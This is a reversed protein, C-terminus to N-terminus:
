EGAPGEHEPLDPRLAGDADLHKRDTGTAPAGCPKLRPTADLQLRSTM